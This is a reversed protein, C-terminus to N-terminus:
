IKNNAKYGTNPTLYNLNVKGAHNCLLFFCICQKLAESNAACGFQTIRNWIHSSIIQMYLIEIIFFPYEFVYSFVYM